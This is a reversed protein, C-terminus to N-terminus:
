QFNGVFIPPIVLGGKLQAQPGIYTSGPQWVNGAGNNPVGNQVRPPLPQPNLMTSVGPAPKAPTDGVLGRTVRPPLPQPNLSNAVGPRLVGQAVGASMAPSVRPPAFSAALLSMACASSAGIQMLMAAALTSLCLKTSMVIEQLSHHFMSSLHQM